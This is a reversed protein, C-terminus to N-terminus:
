RAVRCEVVTRHVLEVWVYTDPRRSTGACVERFAAVVADSAAESSRTLEHAMAFLAPGYRDYLEALAIQDGTSAQDVLCPDLREDCTRM